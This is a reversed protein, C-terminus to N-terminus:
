FYGEKKRLEMSAENTQDDLRTAGRETITTGITEALI